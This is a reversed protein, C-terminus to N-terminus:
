RSCRQNAEEHGKKEGSQARGQHAGLVDAMAIKGVALSPVGLEGALPGFAFQPPVVPGPPAAKEVRESEGVVDVPEIRGGLGPNVRSRGQVAAGPGLRIRKPVARGSLEVDDRMKKATGPLGGRG